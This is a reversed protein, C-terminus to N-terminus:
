EVESPLSSIKRAPVGVYFGNEDCDNLVLSGAGIVAGRRIRVGQLITANSGIFVGDEIVIESMSGTGARIKPNDINHSSTIFSVGIGIGVYEGININVRNDFVANCNVTSGKGIVLKRTRIVCNAKIQSNMSIRIGAFRLILVRLLTPIAFSSTINNVLFLWFHSELEGRDKYIERIAKSLKFNRIQM